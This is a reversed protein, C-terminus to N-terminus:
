LFGGRPQEARSHSAAVPAGMPAGMVCAPNTNPMANLGSPLVTRVPLPSRVVRAAASQLRAQAMTIEAAVDDQVQFM